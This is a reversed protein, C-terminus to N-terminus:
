DVTLQFLGLDGAHDESFVALDLMRDGSEGSVAPDRLFKRIPENRETELFELGVGDLGQTGMWALFAHEVRRQFVRCSM